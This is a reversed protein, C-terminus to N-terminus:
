DITLFTGLAAAVIDGDMAGICYPPDPPVYSAAPDLASELAEALAEMDFTLAVITDTNEFVTFVLEPNDRSFNM